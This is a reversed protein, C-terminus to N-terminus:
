QSNADAEFALELEYIDLQNPGTFMETPLDAHATEFDESNRWQEFAERSEWYAKIVFENTDVSGLIEVERLGSRSRIRPLREEFLQLFRDEHGQAVSLRNAVVLM